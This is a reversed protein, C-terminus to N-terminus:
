VAEAPFEEGGATPMIDDVPAPPFPPQDSPRGACYEDVLRNFMDFFDEEHVEGWAAAGGTTTLPSAPEATPASPCWTGWSNPGIFDSGFDEPGWPPLSTGDAGTPLTPLWVGM